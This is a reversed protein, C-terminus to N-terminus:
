ARPEHRKRLNRATLADAIQDEGLADIVADLDCQSAVIDLLDHERVGAAVVLVNPGVAANITASAASFSITHSPSLTATRPM